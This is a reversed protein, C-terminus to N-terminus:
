MSPTGLTSMAVRARRQLGMEIVDRIQTYDDQDNGTDKFGDLVEARLERVTSVSSLNYYPQLSSVASEFLYDFHTKKFDSRNILADIANAFAVTHINIGARTMEEVFAEVVKAQALPIQNSLDIKGDKEFPLHRALEIHVKNAMEKPSLTLDDRFSTLESDSQGTMVSITMGLINRSGYSCDFEVDLLHKNLSLPGHRMPRSRDDDWGLERLANRMEILREGFLSDLMDQYKARKEYTDLTAYLAATMTTKM